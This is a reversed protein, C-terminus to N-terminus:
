ATVHILPEANDMTVSGSMYKAIMATHASARSSMRDRARWWSM